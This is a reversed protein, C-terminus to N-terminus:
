SQRRSHTRHEASREYLRNPQTTNYLDPSTTSALPGLLYPCQTRPPVLNGAAHNPQFFDFQGARMMAFKEGQKQVM